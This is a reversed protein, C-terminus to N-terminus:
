RWIYIITVFVLRMFYIGTGICGLGILIVVVAAVPTSLLYPLASATVFIGAMCILAGILILIFSFISGILINYRM